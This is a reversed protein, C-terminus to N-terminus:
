VRERCSARGIEDYVVIHKQPTYGIRGLMAQLREVDPLKGTAPPIGSVLEGPSVHVAGHIHNQVWNQPSCIDVILLDSDGMVAELDQPEIILVLQKKM